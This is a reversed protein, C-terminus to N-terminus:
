EKWLRESNYRNQCIQEDAPIFLSFCSGGGPASSVTVYGRQGEAIQRVLYLGIGVGECDRATSGRYFRAFVRTREDEPIGIGTDSVDIRCFLEYRRVSVTISGGRPTYKVANDILNCLAEETWKPDFFATLEEADAMLKIDKATAKPLLQCVASDIMPGIPSLKPEITLVGTELRSLKVLADILSRLKEAQTSLASVCKQGAETLEQECLLQSYLLVNAIPTKTQHSIDAILSKIKDRERQLNQASVRSSSLYHALRTELASRLSEDFLEERFSGDMAADLMAMLNEMITRTRRREAIIAAISASVAVAALCIVVIM